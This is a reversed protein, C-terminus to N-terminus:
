GHMIWAVFAGALEPAEIAEVRDALSAALEELEEATPAQEFKAIM